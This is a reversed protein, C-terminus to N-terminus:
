KDIPHEHISEPVFVIVQPDTLDYPGTKAYSHEGILEGIHM